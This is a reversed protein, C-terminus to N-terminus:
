KQKYLRHHRGMSFSPRRFTRQVTDSRSFRTAFLAILHCPRVAHQRAEDSSAILTVFTGTGISEKADNSAHLLSGHGGIEELVQAADTFITVKRLSQDAIVKQIADEMAAEEARESGAYEGHLLRSTNGTRTCVTAAAAIGDKAAGDVFFTADNSIMATAVDRSCSANTNVNPRPMKALLLKPIRPQTM